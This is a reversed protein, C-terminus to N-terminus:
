SGKKIFSIINLKKKMESYEDENDYEVYEGHRKGNVYECEIKNNEKSSPSRLVGTFPNNNQDLYIADENIDNM